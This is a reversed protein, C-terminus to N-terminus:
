ESCQEKRLYAERAAAVQRIHEGVTTCCGGVATAGAKMYMSAWAGFAMGGGVKTWAKTNPDYVDGSNPYVAVPLDTGAKLEEILSVIHRPDTCNVGLMRLHPHSSGNACIAKACDAILTGDNIHTGDKCSFSIWYDAGLSEALDACILAERYSPITEILLLDPEEEWLIEMRRRHFERLEEDSIAYNGRYESGDALYAGYPGIAALCLPWSRGAAKGEEDWWTQRAECFLRVSRRLIEEAESESYGNEMLGPITAQYSATIGCDAGARFYETHVQRILDPQEALVKCTWLSHNLDAGLRELATSMSGDIVMITNKRLIEQLKNSM